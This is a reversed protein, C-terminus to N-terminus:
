NLKAELEKVKQLYKGQRAEAGWYGYAAGMLGRGELDRSVMEANESARQMDRNVMDEVRKLLNRCVNKKKLELALEAAHYLDELGGSEAYVRIAQAKHGLDECIKAYKSPDERRLKLLIETEITIKKKM